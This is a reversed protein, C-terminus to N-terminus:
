TTTHARKHWAENEYVGFRQCLAGNDSLDRQTLIASGSLEDPTEIDATLM